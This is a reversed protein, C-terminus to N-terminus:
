NNEKIEQAMNKLDSVLGGIVRRGYTFLWALAIAQILIGILKM